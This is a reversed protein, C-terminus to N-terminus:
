YAKAQQARVQEETKQYKAKRREVTIQQQTNKLNHQEQPQTTNPMMDKGETELNNWHKHQNLLVFLDTLESLKDDAQPRNARVM